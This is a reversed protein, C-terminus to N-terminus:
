QKLTVESGDALNLNGSIIISDGESLVSGRDANAIISCSDGNTALINVYVWEAKGAEYRFLVDMRDRIVIASKPVVLCGPVSNEVFVKVNMGDLLQGNNRVSASVMIQGSPSISPNICGLSAKIREGTGAAVPSIYIDPSSTIAAYESELIPFVVDMTSDNILTCVPGSAAGYLKADLNAIRGSFPARLDARSYDMRASKLANAASSYGSKMKATALITEPVAVTDSAAYGLSVLYDYLDLESKRFALEATELALRKEAKDISAIVDGKNVHQGNKVYIGAVTGSTQFALDCRKSAELRGNSLVQTHFAARKLTIVEVENVQPKYALKGEGGENQANNQNACSVFALCVTISRVKNLWKKM